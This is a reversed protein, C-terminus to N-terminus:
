EAVTIADPFGNRVLYSEYEAAQTLTNCRGVRVRYFVPQDDNSKVMHANKYTKDLQRVLTEANQRDVFAGVQFTFNGQHYAVPLYTPRGDPKPDGAKGLATVKVPATGPGVIGLKKAAGFSLDIIRNRVFPGRDNIRVDLTQGSELHHVQVWTGLPLTKHAASVGYMNYREGNATKRGHFKKGYWSALGRQQFGRSDALPQYWRGMVKYPKPTGPSSPRTPPTSRACGSIGIAVFLLLTIIIRGIVNKSQCYM